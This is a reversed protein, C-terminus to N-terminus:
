EFPIIPPGVPDFFNAATVPVWLGSGISVLRQADTDGDQISNFPTNGPAGYIDVAKGFYRNEGPSADNSVVDTDIAPVGGLAEEGSPWNSLHEALSELTANIETTGATNVAHTRASGAMNTWTFSEAASAAEFLHWRNSAFGGGDVDSNSRILLAFLIDNVGTEKLFHIIDGRTSYIRSWRFDQATTKHFASELQLSPTFEDGNHTPLSATTGGSYTGNHGWRWETTIYPASNDNVAVLIELDGFNGAVPPVVVYWAGNGSTGLGVAAGNPINDGAGATAGSSSISVTWNAAVWSEKVEYFHEQYQVTQDIVTSFANNINDAWSRILAVM